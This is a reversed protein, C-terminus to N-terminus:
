AEASAVTAGKLAGNLAQLREIAAEASYRTQTLERGAQALAAGAERHDRFWLISEALCDPDAPPVLLGTVGHLVIDPISGVKTAVVPKGLAFAQPITQTLTETGTSSVAFLDMAAMVAPVDDRHGLMRIRGTLRVQKTQAFLRGREPGDGAILVVRRCSEALGARRGCHFTAAGQ